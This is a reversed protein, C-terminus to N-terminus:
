KGPEFSKLEYIDEGTDIKVVGVGPVYWRQWGLFVGREDDARVKLAEFTGAPVAVKEVARVSVSGTFEIGRQGPPGDSTTWWSKVAWTDGKKAPLKLVCVPPDFRYTRARSEFVGEDSVVLESTAAKPDDPRGLTLTTVRDTTSSKLVAVQFEDQGCVYVWKTGPATPFFTRGGADKPVPASPVGGVFVLSFAASLLVVAWGRICM